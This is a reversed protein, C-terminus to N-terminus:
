DSNHCQSIINKNNGIKPHTAYLLSHKVRQAAWKVYWMRDESIHWPFPLHNISLLKANDAKSGM